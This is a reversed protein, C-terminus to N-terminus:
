GPLYLDVISQALGDLLGETVDVGNGTKTL